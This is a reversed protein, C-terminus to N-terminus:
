SVQIYAGYGAAVLDTYQQTTLVFSRGGCYVETAAAIDEDRAGDTEIYAGNLRLVTTGVHLYNSKAFLTKATGPHDIEQNYSTTGPTFVYQPM